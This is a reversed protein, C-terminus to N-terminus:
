SKGGRGPIYIHECPYGNDCPHNGGPGAACHECPDYKESALNARHEQIGPTETEPEDTWQDIVTYSKIRPDSFLASLADNLEERVKSDDGSARLGTEFELELAFRVVRRKGAM